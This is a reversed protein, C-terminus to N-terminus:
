VRLTPDDAVETELWTRFTILKPLNEKEKRCVLYWHNPNKIRRGPFLEILLGSSIEQRLYPQQGLAVGMGQVASSLAVDYSEFQLGTDPNIHPAANAELWVQWDAASPFVQLLNASDLDSPASIAGHRELYRPSCVPFLECAFLQHYSLHRDLPQGIMISADTDDKAFNVDDQSTHLRVQVDPHLEQFRTLRPLLWRITFTSYVHLTLIASSEGEEILRTGDALRDFADRLVPYFLKGKLTLEVARTKRVFLHLGLYTELTKVQHSIASQSVNLEGAAEKFSMYRAAAEFARLANLPPLRRRKNLVTM